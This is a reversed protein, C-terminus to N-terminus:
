DYDKVLKVPDVGIFYSFRLWWMRVMTSIIGNKEWRRSSTMVKERLCLPSTINKLKRSMEIDEMLEIEPFGGVERYLNKSLFIVQDGTVIGTLRSRLNMMTEIVRFLWHQGSLKVDFRGWYFGNVSMSSILELFNDPLRTDVHLFFIIEGKARLTGANMQIARGREMSIYQDCYGDVLEPTKDFSGGDVVIVEVDQERFRQLPLLCSQVELEENLTPIVITCSTM